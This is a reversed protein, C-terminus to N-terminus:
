FNELEYKGENTEFFIQEGKKYIKEIKLDTKYLIKREKTDPNYRIILNQTEQTLNYNKKKQEEDTYIVGIYEETLPVYDLFAYFYLFTNTNKNYTFAGKDSIFILEQSTIWPKIYLIEPIFTLPFFSYSSTDLIWQTEGTNIYVSRTSEVEQVQIKNAQIKAFRFLEKDEYFLALKEGMDQIIIEKGSKLPFSAYSSKQKRLQLIKEEATTGSWTLIEEVKELQVQKEMTVLVEQTNRAKLTFTQVEDKYGTSTLTMNYQFPPIDQLTCRKETCNYDFTQATKKSFLSVKYSNINTDIVLTATYYLFFYM